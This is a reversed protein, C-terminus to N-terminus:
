PKVRYGWQDIKQKALQIAQKKDTSWFVKADNGVEKVKNHIVTRDGASCWFGVGYGRAPASDPDTKLIFAKTLLDFGYGQKRLYNQAADKKSAVILLVVYFPFYGSM